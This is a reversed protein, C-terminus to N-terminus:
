ASRNAAGGGPVFDLSYSYMPCARGISACTMFMLNWFSVWTEMQTRSM